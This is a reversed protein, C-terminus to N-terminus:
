VCFAWSSSGNEHALDTAEDRTRDDTETTRCLGIVLSADAQRTGLEAVLGFSKYLRATLCSLMLCIFSFLSLLFTRTVSPTLGVSGVSSTPGLLRMDGASM